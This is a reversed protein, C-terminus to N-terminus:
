RFLQALLDVPVHPVRAHSGERRVPADVLQLALGPITHGRQRKLDRPAHHVRPDRRELFPKRVGLGHRLVKAGERVVHDLMDMLKQASLVFSRLIGSRQQEAEATLLEEAPVLDVRQYAMIGARASRQDLLGIRVQHIQHTAHLALHPEADHDRVERANGRAGQM